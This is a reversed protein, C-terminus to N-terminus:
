TEQFFQDLSLDSVSFFELCELGGVRSTRFEPFFHSKLYGNRAVFVVSCFAVELASKGCADRM